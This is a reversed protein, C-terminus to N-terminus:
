SLTAMASAEPAAATSDKVEPRDLTSTPTITATARSGGAAASPKLEARAFEAM